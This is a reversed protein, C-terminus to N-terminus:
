RSASGNRSTASTSAKPKPQPKKAPASKAAPKASSKSGASATKAPPQTAPKETPPPPTVAQVPPAPQSPADVDQGLWRDHPDGSRAPAAAPSAPAPDPAPSAAPLAATPSSTRADTPEPPTAAPQAPAPLASSSTALGSTQEAPTATSPREAPTATSAGAPENSSPPPVVPTPAAPAAPTAATPAAPAAAATATMTGGVVHAAGVRSVRFGRQALLEPVGRAGLLHGTGIVVFRSKGDAALGALRDTMTQNRSWYIREFFAAQEATSDQAPFLLSTLKTEDGAEWSRLLDRTVDLLAQSEHITGLLWTEQVADPLSAFASMQEDLTELSRIPKHGKARRLLVADVGNEPQLGVANYELDQVQLAVMWPRMQDIRDMSSDRRKMYAAVQAYTDARVTQKLTQPAPLLGYHNIADVADVPSLSTVDLEVVIEDAAQWDTEIRPDLALERGDGIHVSGLLFLKGGDPATAEWFFAQPAIADGPRPKRTPTRTTQCAAVFAVLAALAVRVGGRLRVKM